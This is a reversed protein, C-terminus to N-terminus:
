ALQIQISSHILKEDSISVSSHSMRAYTIRENSIHFHFYALFTKIIFLLLLLLYINYGPFIMMGYSDIQLVLLADGRGGDDTARHFEILYSAYKVPIRNKYVIVIFEHTQMESEIM